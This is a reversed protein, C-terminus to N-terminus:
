FWAKRCHCVLDCNVATLTPGQVEDSDDPDATFPGWPSGFVPAINAVSSATLYHRALQHRDWNYDIWQASGLTLAFSVEGRTAGQADKYLVTPTALGLGIFQLRVDSAASGLDLPVETTNPITYVQVDRAYKLPDSMLFTLTFRRGSYLGALDTTDVGEYSAYVLRDTWFNAFRIELSESAVLRLFRDWLTEAEGVSVARLAGEVTFRRPGSDKAGDRLAGQRGPITVLHDSRSPPGTLGSPDGLLLKFAGLDRGNVYMKTPFTM